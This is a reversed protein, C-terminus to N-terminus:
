RLALSLVLSLVAVAVGFVLTIALEGASRGLALILGVGFAVAAVTSGVAWGVAGHMVGVRWLLLYVGVSVLSLAIGGARRWNRQRRARDDEIETALKERAQRESALDQKLSEVAKAAEERAEALAQSHERDKEDNKIRTQELDHAVGERRRIEEELDEAAKDARTEARARAEREEQAVAAHREAQRQFEDLKTSYAATVRRGVEESTEASGIDSVLATDKLVALALEPSADTYQDMRGVVARVVEPRVPSRYGVYPSTLLDVVTGELDKTRPTLARMVQAWSSPSICFPLEPAPDRPDPMAKAFRPLRTDQTLFWYRANSFRITGAGRLREVLLRHKVDHEIVDRHKTAVGVIAELLSAYQQIRDGDRDTALCGDDVVEIQWKALDHEFHSVRAFYDEPTVGSEQVARWYAQGFGKEGTVQIMLGALQPRFKTELTEREAAAISTRMEEVTWPTVAVSCGLSVTLELLRQAAVVEDAPAVGLVSYLFNTDLYIRTKSADDEILSKAAPDITLVTLYFATNLRTALFERQEPSPDRVFRKLADDRIGDLRSGRPPLFHTGFSEVEGLVHRAREDDPYLLLAAEVGHRAVIKNLWDQLDERLAEHEAPLLDPSRESLVEGWQELAKREVEASTAARDQLEQRLAPLLRFGGAVKAAAGEEILDDRVRRIEAIEIELGWLDHFGRQCEVLDAFGGDNMECAAVTLERLTLDLERGSDEFPRYAALRRAADIGPGELLPDLPNTVLQCGASKVWHHGARWWVTAARTPELSSPDPARRPSRHIFRAPQCQDMTGPPDSPGSLTM